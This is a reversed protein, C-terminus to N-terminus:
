GIILEDLGRKPVYHVGEEDRYYRYDGGPELEEIVIEEKPKGIAIVLPIEYKEDINLTERLGERNLNGIMCGGLGHETAGLLMSHAAIGPDQGLPERITTDGLILIYASPREGEEPGPWDPLSRAWRTHEFVASNRETEYSLIFRLPQKNMGSPSLRALNILERLTTEGIKHEQYFRRYSRNQKILDHLM